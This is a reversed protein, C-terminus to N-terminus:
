CCCFEDSSVRRKRHRLAREPATPRASGSAARVRARSGLVGRAPGCPCWGADGSRLYDLAAVLGPRSVERLVLTNGAIATSNHAEEHWMDDWIGTAEKPSPLGGLRRLEEAGAEFRKFVTARTPRGRRGV